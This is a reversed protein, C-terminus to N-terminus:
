QDEKLPPTSPRMRLDAACYPTYAFGLLNGRALLRWRMHRIAEGATAGSTFDALFSEAAVSAAHQDVLTETGVVGAAGGAVFNTVFGAMTSAVVEATYCANLVILPRRGYWHDKPWQDRAWVAVDDSTLSHDPFVLAQTREAPGARECHGLLYVVDM